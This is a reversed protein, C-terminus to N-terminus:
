VGASTLYLTVVEFPLAGSDLQLHYLRNYYRGHGSYYFIFQDDPNWVEVAKRIANTIQDPTIEGTLLVSKAKSCDGLRSQTLVTHMRAADHNGGILGKGTTGVVVAIREPVHARM